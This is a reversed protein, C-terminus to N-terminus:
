GGVDGTKVGIFNYWGPIIEYFEIFYPNSELDDLDPFPNSSNEFEFHADLFHWVPSDPFEIIIGLILKRLLLLDLPKLQHDGNADAAIIQYPHQFVELGLIHRMIKVLDLTNVDTLYSDDKSVSLKYDLYQDHDGFSYKGDVDTYTFKPFDPFDAELKVEAGQIPVDNWDKVVGSIEATPYCDVFPEPIVTLFVTCFNNNDSNDWFYVDIQVPSNVVDECTIPRMPVISDGSFSFRIEENPTCNDFVGVNYDEAYIEVDFGSYIITSLSVCFPTPPSKDVVSFNTVCLDGLDCDDSVNWVVKHTSNVEEIDPLEINQSENNTTTPIYLDPIGNNNTDDMTTDDSPLDSRYEIDNTGDNNLDVTVIWKIESQDCIIDDTYYASKTLVIKAECVNGDDDSDSQDNIEFEQFSCSELKLSQQGSLYCPLLLLLLYFISKTKKM